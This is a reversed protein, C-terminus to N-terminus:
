EFNNYDMGETATYPTKYYEEPQPFMYNGAIPRAYNSFRNGLNMKSGTGFYTRALDTSPNGTTPNVGTGALKLRDAMLSKTMGYGMLDGGLNNLSNSIMAKNSQIAQGLGQEKMLRRQLATQTNMIGLRNYENMASQQRGMAANFASRRLAADNGSFQNLANIAESNGMAGIAGGIGGMRDANAKSTALIRALRSNYGATEAGTYGQPNAVGAVAQQYFSNLRADPTYQPVPQRDLEAAKAEAKNKDQWSNYMNYAQLGAGIIQPIM